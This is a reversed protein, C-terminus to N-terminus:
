AVSGTLTLPGHLIFQTAEIFSSMAAVHDTWTKHRLALREITEYMQQEGLVYRDM